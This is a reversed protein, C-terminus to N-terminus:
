GCDGRRHGAHSRRWDWPAIQVVDQWLGLRGVRAQAEASSYAANPLAQRERSIRNYHWALGAQLMTLNVDRRCVTLTALTRGYRDLGQPIAVVDQNLTLAELLVKSERGYPMNCEPADIGALRIRLTRSRENLVAVTDGDVVRVVRGAIVDVQAGTSLAILAGLLVTVLSATRPPRLVLAKVNTQKIAPETKRRCPQNRCLRRWM